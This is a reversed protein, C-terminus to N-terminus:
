MMCASMMSTGCQVAAPLSPLPVACTATTYEPRLSDMSLLLVFEFDKDRRPPDASTM